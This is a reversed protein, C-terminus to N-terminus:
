FNGARVGGARGVNTVGGVSLLTIKDWVVMKSHEALATGEGSMEQSLDFLLSVLESLILMTVALEALSSNVVIDLRSIM